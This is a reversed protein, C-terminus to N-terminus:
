RMELKLAEIERKLREYEEVKHKLFRATLDAKEAMGTPTLLYAYARKNQANRFNAMKILGKGLQAKLCYNAKGLSVGLARSLERQSMQPNAELLRLVKFHVEEHVRHTDGM